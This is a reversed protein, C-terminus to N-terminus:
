SFMNNYELITINGNNSNNNDIIENIANSFNTTNLVENFHTTANETNRRINNIENNMQNHYRANMDNIDNIEEQTFGGHADEFSIQNNIDNAYSERLLEEAYEIIDHYDNFSRHNPHNQESDNVYFTEYHEIIFERQFVDGNWNQSIWDLLTNDRNRFCELCTYCDNSHEFPNKGYRSNCNQSCNCMNCNCSECTKVESNCRNCTVTVDLDITNTVNLLLEGSNVVNGRNYIHNNRNTIQDVELIEQRCCPCNTQQNHWTHICTYHFRHGCQLTTINSSGLPELCVSCQETTSSSM